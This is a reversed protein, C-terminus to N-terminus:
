LIVHIVVRDAFPDNDAPAVLLPLLGDNDVALGRVDVGHLHFVAGHQNEAALPELLFRLCNALAQGPPYTPKQALRMVRRVVGRGAGSLAYPGRQLVCPGAASGCFEVVVEDPKLIQKWYRTRSKLRAETRAARKKGRAASRRRGRSLFAVAGGFRLSAELLGDVRAL